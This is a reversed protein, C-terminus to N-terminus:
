LTWMEEAYKGVGYKEEIEDADHSSVFEEIEKPNILNILKQYYEDTIDEYTNSDLEIDYEDVELFFRGYESDVVIIATVGNSDIEYDLLEGKKNKKNIQTLHYNWADDGYHKEYEEATKYSKYLPRENEEKYNPNAKIWCLDRAYNMRTWEVIDQLSPIATVTISSNIRKLKLFKIPKM